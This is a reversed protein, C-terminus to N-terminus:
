RVNLLRVFKRLRAALCVTDGCTEWGSGYTTECSLHQRTASSLQKFGDLPKQQWDTGQVAAGLAGAAAILSVVVNQRM